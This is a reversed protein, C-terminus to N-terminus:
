KNVLEDLRSIVESAQGKTLDKTSEVEISFENALWDLREDGELEYKGMLTNVARLQADTLPADPNKAVPKTKSEGKKKYDVRTIEGVNIGASALDDYTLNRIGLLRTVGNGILNTFAAKRVDGKDIESPPLEVREKGTEYKYKKFFPDKSSRTGIADISAGQLSFEGAFHYTFHGGEEQECTPEKIRWSIGFLRAVKESGSAQLYPKGNQDVWDNHNTVKLSLQKIKNVADIRSEAQTAMTVISDSAIPSVETEEIKEIDKEKM